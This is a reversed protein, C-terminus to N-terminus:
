LVLDGVWCPCSPSPFMACPQKESKVGWGPAGFTTMTGPSHSHPEPEPLPDPSGAHAVDGLFGELLLARVRCSLRAM